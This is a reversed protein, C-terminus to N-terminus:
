EIIVKSRYKEQNSDTVEIVYVGANFNKTANVILFQESTSKSFVEKGLVDVIKIKANQIGNLSITFNSNAPNPYVNIISSNLEQLDVSLAQEVSEVVWKSNNDVGPSHKMGDSDQRLYSNATRAQFTYNEETENYIVTWIKDVDENPAPRTTSILSGSGAFRLVGRVKSDINYFNGSSVFEWHTDEDEITSSNTVVVSAGESKLYDGTAVNRLRYVDGTLDTDDKPDITVNIIESVREDSSSYAIAEITHSGEFTPEWETEFPANYDTAFLEGDIVFEVKEVIGNDTFADVKIDVNEEVNLTENNRPSTFSVTLPESAANVDLDIIQLYVPLAAGSGKEMLYYHLKGNSINVRGHDFRKGTTAEYVRRFNNTGGKAKEVFVRDNNLGIIYIDDGSTYIAEAGSFETTTTFDVDGAKRYTHAYITEGFELDQVASIVHVDDNATVTWDFNGVIRVKNAATTRVLDGPEAVLIKDSDILPLNFGEGKHNKWETLGDQDDSYAYYIGNQFVYKDNNNSSRRQYGIRMKGNVYKIDGYLGWNFQQGRRRANLINFDTFNSWTSTAANYKSFKYAGNNNGGERMYMFLDGADNQFFQPYTLAAFNAYDEGGNLSLHKYDGDNNQVFKDLTFEEDPLTAADKISYSYRFYDKSLSGDSPRTRSYAHMDYLLHITGDLPSIGVAITNHSEGIWWRNLYGNHRHPFEITVTEETIKNYRSLMVHRDGKGGRYWTMFVFDGYTKICDGHASINRGFFFDYATDEGTNPANSAVKSGNFHLAIDSIKIEKELSVQSTLSSIFFISLLFFSTQLM